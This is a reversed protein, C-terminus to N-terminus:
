VHEFLPEAGGIDRAPRRLNKRCGLHAIRNEGLHLRRNSLKRAASISRAASRPLSMSTANRIHGGRLTAAFDAEYIEFKHALVKSISLEPMM